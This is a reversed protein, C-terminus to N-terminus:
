ADHQVFVNKIKKAVKNCIWLGVTFPTLLLSIIALTFPVELGLYIDVEHNAIKHVLLFVSWIVLNVLTSYKLTAWFRSKGEYIDRALMKGAFWLILIFAILFGLTPYGNEFFWGLLFLSEGTIVVSIMAFLVIAGIGLPLGFSLSAKAGASEIIKLNKM